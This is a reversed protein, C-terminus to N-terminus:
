LVRHKQRSSAAIHHHPRPFPSPPQTQWVTLQNCGKRSSSSAYLPALETLDEIEKITEKSLVMAKDFDGGHVIRHCALEIDEESKIPLDSDSALHKLFCQLAEEQSSVDPLVKKHINSSGSPSSLNTYSFIVPPSKINAISSSVLAEPTASFSASYLSLKVSSSGSNVSLIVKSHEGAM